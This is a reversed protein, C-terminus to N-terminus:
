HDVELVSGSTADVKVDFDDGGNVPDFHFEYRLQGHDFELEWEDLLVEGQAKELATALAKDVPVVKPYDIIEKQPIHEENEQEMRAEGTMANVKVKYEMNDKYGKLVYQYVDHDRDLAVQHLNAGQTQQTFIEIAEQISTDGEARNSWEAPTMGGATSSAAQEQSSAVQSQEQASSEQASSSMEGTVESTTKESLESSETATPQAACGAFMSASVLVASLLMWRRNKM